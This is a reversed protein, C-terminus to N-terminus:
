CSDGHAFWLTEYTEDDKWWTQWENINDEDTYSVERSVSAFDSNEKSLSKAAEIANEESSDIIRLLFSDMYGMDSLFDKYSCGEGYKDYLKKSYDKDFYSVSYRYDDKMVKEM